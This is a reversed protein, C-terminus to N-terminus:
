INRDWNVFFDIMEWEYTEWTICLTEDWVMFDVHAMSVNMWAADREKKNLNDSGKLTTSYSTWLALHCSANEDFLTNYYILWSKYIPSNVPVIAVEWLRCSNEDTEIISKLIEYWEEANFDVVKWEKFTLSFNKILKWGHELPLTASVKWNVGYKHPMSFVEETPLNPCFFVGRKNKEWASIWIHNEPM